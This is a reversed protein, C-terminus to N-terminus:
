DHQGDGRLYLFLLSIKQKKALANMMKNIGTDM